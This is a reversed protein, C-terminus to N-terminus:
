SNRYNFKVEDIERMEFSLSLPQKAMLPQLHAKLTAFLAEGATQRDALARGKGVNMGVHVFGNDSDGQGVRQYDARYARARLGAEPFLGTGVATQCLAELLVPMDLLQDSLNNSHEVIIHPM